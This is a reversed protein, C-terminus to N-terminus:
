FTSQLNYIRKLVSYLEDFTEFINLRDTDTDKILALREKEVELRKAKDEIDGLINNFLEICPTIVYSNETPVGFYESQEKSQVLLLFKKKPFKKLLDQIYEKGKMLFDLSDTSVKIAENMDVIILDSTLSQLHKKLQTKGTGKSLILSSLKVKCLKKMKRHRNLCGMGGKFALSVLGGALLLSNSEM